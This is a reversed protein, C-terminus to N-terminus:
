DGDGFSSPHGHHEAELAARPRGAPLPSGRPRASPGRRWRPSLGEIVNCSSLVRPKGRADAVRLTCHEVAAGGGGICLAAADFDARLGRAIIWHNHRPSNVDVTGRRRIVIEVEFPIFGLHHTWDCLHLQRWFFPIGHRLKHIVVFIYEPM